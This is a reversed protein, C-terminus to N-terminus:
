DIKKIFKAPNGGWIEGSPINRTVVSGAAIISKDGITIGKGIICRAGIFVHNGIHVPATKANAIDEVRNRRIRWDLSHFNSDYIYTGNGINVYDGIHIQKYCLLTVNNTGSYDGIVLEADKDVTIRSYGGASTRCIFGKGISLNGIINLANAGTFIIDNYFKAKAKKLQYISLKHYLIKQIKNSIRIYVFYLRIM